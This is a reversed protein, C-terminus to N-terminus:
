RTREKKEVALTSVWGNMQRVVTEKQAHVASESSQLKTQAAPALRMVRAGERLTHGSSPGAGFFRSLFSYQLHPGGEM